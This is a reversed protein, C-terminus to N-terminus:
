KIIGIEIKGFEGEIGHECYYREKNNMYHKYAYDRKYIEIAEKESNAEIDEDRDRLYRQDCFKPILIGVKYTKNSM